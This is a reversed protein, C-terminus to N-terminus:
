IDEGFKDQTFHFHVNLVRADENLTDAADAAKRYFKIAIVDEVALTGSPIKTTFITRVLQGATHNGATTQTFSPGAGVVVEGESIAKYEIGWVVKGNDATDHFWDVVVEIDTTTDWRFPIHEQCYTSEETTKDFDLTYFLGEFSEGPYNVAPMKFRTPDILLHRLVKSGTGFRCPEDIFNCGTHDERAM